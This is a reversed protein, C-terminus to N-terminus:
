TFSHYGGTGRRYRRVRSCGRCCSGTAAGCTHLLPAARRCSHYTLALSHHTRAFPARSYSAFQRGHRPRAHQSGERHRNAVWRAGAPLKTDRGPKQREPPAAASSRSPHLYCFPMIKISVCWLLVVARRPAASRTCGGARQGSAVVGCSGHVLRSVTGRFGTTDRTRLDKSVFQFIFRLRVPWLVREGSPHVLGDLIYDSCAM